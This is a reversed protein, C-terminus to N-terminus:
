ILPLRLCFPASPTKNQQHCDRMPHGPSTYSPRTPCSASSPLRGGASGPPPPQVRRRPHMVCSAPAPWSLVNTRCIPQRRWHRIATSLKTRECCYHQLLTHRFIPSQGPFGWREMAGHSLGILTMKKRTLPSKRGGHTQRRHTTTGDVYGLFLKNQNQNVCQEIPRYDASAPSRTVPAM